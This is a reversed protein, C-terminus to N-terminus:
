KEKMMKMLLEALRAQEEALQDYDKQQQETPKGDPGISEALEATRRNIEEQLMKLLKLEALTAISQQQNQNQNANPPAAKNGANNDANQKNEPPEPKLADLLLDLRHMANQQLQQTEAGSQQRDLLGAAQDMNRSAQDVALAFAAIRDLQRGIHITDFQLSRQLRGLDLIAALQARTFQGQSQRAQEYKRTDDLISQQRKQIDKIIKELKSLQDAISERTSQHMLMDIIQVLNEIIARQQEVAQASRIKGCNTAALDCKGASAWERRRM